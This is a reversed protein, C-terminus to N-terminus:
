QMWNGAPVIVFPPISDPQGGLSLIPQSGDRGIADAVAAEYSNFDEDYPLSNKQKFRWVAGLTHIREDLKSVDTDATFASRGTVGTVDTCWNKSCWEFFVSQGASPTPFFLVNNGRIRYQVWPGSSFQAKLEQWQQSSKPGFIPRRQTRNWLTNNIVFSFDAGALTLISGQSETAVTTFSSENTLVQWNHRAALEQGDENICELLQLV